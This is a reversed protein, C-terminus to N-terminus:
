CNHKMALAAAGLLAADDEKLSSFAIRVKDKWLFLVSEDFAKRVHKMLLEGSRALGGFIFIAEPATVTVADALARGLIEGTIRFAELAVKDGEMAAASIDKAEIADYPVSRFVSPESMSSLLEVVTRKIGTASVYTELCGKRGCGCQRNSHRDYIIHGYEGALGDSGYVLNGDVVFGSGVGTGLTIMIFDKMGKAGGFLMEGMTAANADNDIYVPKGDLADSLMSAFPLVGKWELNTAHEITGKRVNVSPAGAGAGYIADLGGFPQSVERLMSALAKIYDGFEAFGTTKMSKRALINGECDVICCVTNTGGVDIGAVYKKM